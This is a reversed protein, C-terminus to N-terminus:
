GRTSASEPRGVDDLPEEVSRGRLATRELDGVRSEFRLRTDIDVEPQAESGPGQIELCEYEAVLDVIPNADGRGAVTNGAEWHKVVDIDVM